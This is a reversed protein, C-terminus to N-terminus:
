CVAIHYREMGRPKAAPAFSIFYSLIPVVRAALGQDLASAWVATWGMGLTYHFRLVRTRVGILMRPGRSKALRTFRLFSSPQKVLFERRPDLFADLWSRIAGIDPM